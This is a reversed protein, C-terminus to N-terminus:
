SLKPHALLTMQGEPWQPLNRTLMAFFHKLVLNSRVMCSTSVMIARVNRRSIKVNEGKTFTPKAHIRRLTLVAMGLAWLCHQRIGVERPPILLVYQMAQDLHFRAIGLLERVADTFRPDERHATVTDLELGLKEFMDRPLWCAGRHWDEWLDKLINTMQLGQGFSISLSLLRRRESNIESSYDCFLETLMEGVVGAVCYCYHNLAPLDRLGITDSKIQFEMMGSTMIEVCKVIAERQQTSLGQLIGVVRPIEAILEHERDSTAPSLQQKLHRALDVAQHKGNLTAIFNESFIKKQQLTLATEDEIIDAIRCLLYANGVANRLQPPLVPITLAFTRSVGDLMRAQFGIDDECGHQALRNVMESEYLNGGDWRVVRSHELNIQFSQLTTGYLIRSIDEVGMDGVIQSKIRNKESTKGSEAQRQRGSEGIKKRVSNARHDAASKQWSIAERREFRPMLSIEACVPVARRWRAALPPFIRLTEDPLSAGRGGFRALRDLSRVLHQAAPPLFLTTRRGRRSIIGVHHLWVARLRKM